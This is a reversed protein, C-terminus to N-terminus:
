LKRVAEASYGTDEANYGRCHVSRKTFELGEEGAGRVCRERVERAGKACGERVLKKEERGRGCQPM